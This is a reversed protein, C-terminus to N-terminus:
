DVLSMIDVAKHTLSEGIFGHVSYFIQGESNQAFKFAAKAPTLWEQSNGNQVFLLDNNTPAQVAKGKIVVLGVPLGTYLDLITKKLDPEQFEIEVPPPQGAPTAPPPPVDPADKVPKKKSPKKAKATKKSKSM